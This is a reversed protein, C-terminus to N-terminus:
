GMRRQTEKKGNYLTGWKFALFFIGERYHWINDLLVYFDLYYRIYYFFM